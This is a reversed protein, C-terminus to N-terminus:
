RLVKFWWVRSGTLGQPDQAVVSVKHRGYPLDRDPTFTLKDSVKSYAFDAIRRDDLYVAKINAKVLNTQADRVKASITPARDHTKAPSPALIAPATSPPPPVKVGLARAANLRGGSALKGELNKRRDVSGLIKAKIGADDLGPFAGKVLAATGAVHPTAMAENKENLSRLTEASAGEELKVLIRGPAFAPRDAGLGPESLAQRPEAGFTWLVM